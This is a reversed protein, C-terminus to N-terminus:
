RVGVVADLSHGQDLLKQIQGRYNFCSAAVGSGLKGAASLIKLVNQIAVLVDQASHFRKMSAPLQFCKEEVVFTSESSPALRHPLFEWLHVNGDVLLRLILKDLFQAPKSM